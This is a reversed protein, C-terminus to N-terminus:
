RKEGCEIASDPRGAPLVKRANPCLWTTDDNGPPRHLSRGCDHCHPEHAHTRTVTQKGTAPHIAPLRAGDIEAPWQPSEQRAVEEFDLTEIVKGAHPKKCLHTHDVVPADFGRILEVLVGTVQATEEPTLERPLDTITYEAM